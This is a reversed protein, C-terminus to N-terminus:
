HRKEDRTSDITESADASFAWDLELEVPLALHIRMRMRWFCLANVMSGNQSPFSWYVLEVRLLRGYADFSLLSRLGALVAGLPSVRECNSAGIKEACVLGDDVLGQLVDKVTQSVLVRWYVSIARSALQFILKM